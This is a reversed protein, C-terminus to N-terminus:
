LSNTMEGLPVFTRQFPHTTSKDKLEIPEDEHWVRPGIHMFIRHLRRYPQMKWTDEEMSNRTRKNCCACHDINGLIILGGDQRFGRARTCMRYPTSLYTYNLPDVNSAEMDDILIPGLKQPSPTNYYFRDLNRAVVVNTHVGSSKTRCTQM